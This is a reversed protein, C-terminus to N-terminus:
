QSFKWKREEADSFLVGQRGFAESEGNKQLRGDARIHVLDVNMGRLAQGILMSRHCKAPDEESCMIVASCKAAHSLMLELGKQFKTTNSLRGYDVRGDRNYFEPQEPKGGLSEGFFEYRIGARALATELSKRNFHPFYRSYPRSRVDIVLRVGANQLLNLLHELSHNSHGISFLKLRDISSLENKLLDTLDRKRSVSM